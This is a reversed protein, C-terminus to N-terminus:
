GAHAAGAVATVAAPIDHGYPCAARCAEAMTLDALTASVAADATVKREALMLALASLASPTAAERQAGSEPWASRCLNPCWACFRLTAITDAM